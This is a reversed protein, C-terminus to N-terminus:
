KRESAQRGVHKARKGAGQINLVSPNRVKHTGNLSIRLPNECLRLLHLFEFLLKRGAINEPSECLPTSRNWGWNKSPGTVLRTPAKNRHPSTSNSHNGTSTAVGM